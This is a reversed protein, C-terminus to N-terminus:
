PPREVPAIKLVITLQRVFRVGIRIRVTVLKHRSYEQCNRCLRPSPIWLEVKHSELGSYLRGRSILRRAVAVPVILKGIHYQGYKGKYTNVFFMADEKPINLVDSNLSWLEERLSDTDASALNGIRM